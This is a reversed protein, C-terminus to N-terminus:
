QNLIRELVDINTQLISIRAEVVDRIKSLADLEERMEDVMSELKERDDSDIM